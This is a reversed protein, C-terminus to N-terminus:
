VDKRFFVFVLYITGIKVKISVFITPLFFIELTANIDVVNLIFVFYNEFMVVGTFM